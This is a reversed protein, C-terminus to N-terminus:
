GGQGTTSDGPVDAGSDNQGQQGQDQNDGTNQGQQGQDQNDGTNQGQQGQDAPEGPDPVDVGVRSLTDHAARQASTPLTGTAAAAGTASLLIAGAAAAAKM